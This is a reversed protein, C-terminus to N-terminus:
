MTGKILNLLFVKTRIRLPISRNVKGLITFSHLPFEDSYPNKLSRTIYLTENEEFDKSIRWIYHAWLQDNKKFLVIDFRRLLSCDQSTYEIEEGVNLVPIM